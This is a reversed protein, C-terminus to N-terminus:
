KNLIDSLKWLIDFLEEGSVGTLLVSVKQHNIFPITSTTPFEGLPYELKMFIGHVYIVLMHSVVEMELEKGKL